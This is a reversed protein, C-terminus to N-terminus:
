LASTKQKFKNLLKQKRNIESLAVDAHIGQALQHNLQENSQKVEKLLDLLEKDYVM